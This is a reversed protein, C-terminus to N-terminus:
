HVLRSITFLKLLQVYEPDLLSEGIKGNEKMFELFENELNMARVHYRLLIDTSDREDTDISLLINSLEEQYRLELNQYWGISEIQERSLRM